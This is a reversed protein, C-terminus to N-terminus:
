VKLFSEGLTMKLSHTHKKNKIRQTLKREIKFYIEM